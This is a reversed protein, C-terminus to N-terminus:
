AKNPSSIQKLGTLRPMLRVLQNALMKQEESKDPSAQWLQLILRLSQNQLEKQGLSGEESQKLLKLLERLQEYNIVPANPNPFLNIIGSFITGYRALLLLTLAISKIEEGAAPLFLRHLSAAASDLNLPEVPAHHKTMTVKKRTRVNIDCTNAAKHLISSFIKKSPKETPTRARRPNIARGWARPSKFGRRM